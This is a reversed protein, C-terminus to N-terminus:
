ICSILLTFVKAGRNCGEWQGSVKNVDESLCYFFLVGEREGGLKV